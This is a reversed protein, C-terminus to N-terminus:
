SSCSSSPLLEGKEAGALVKLVRKKRAVTLPIVVGLYARGSGGMTCGAVFRVDKDGRDYLGVDVLDSKHLCVCTLLVTDPSSACLLATREIVFTCGFFAYCHTAGPLDKVEGLDAEIFLMPSDVLYGESRLRRLVAISFLVQLHCNDLGVNVRPKLYLQAQAGPKGSGSGLDFFTSEGPVFKCWEPLAPEGPVSLLLFL